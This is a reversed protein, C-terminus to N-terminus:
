TSRIQGITSKIECSDSWIRSKIITVEFSGHNLSNIIERHIIIYTM